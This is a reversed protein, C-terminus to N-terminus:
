PRQVCETRGCRVKERRDRPCRRRLGYRRCRPCHLHYLFAHHPPNLLSSLSLAVPPTLSLDTPYPRAKICFGLLLDHPRAKPKVTDFFHSSDSGPPLYEIPQMRSRDQLKFALTSNQAENCEVVRHRHHFIVDEDLSEWSRTWGESRAVEREAPVQNRTALLSNKQSAPIGEHWM